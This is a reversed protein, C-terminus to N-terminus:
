PPIEVGLAQPDTETAVPTTTGWFPHERGRQGGGQARAASGRARLAGRRALGACGSGCPAAGGLAWSTCFRRLGAGSTSQPTEWLTVSLAWIAGLPLSSRSASRGVEPTSASERGRREGGLGAEQKVSSAASAAELGPRIIPDLHATVRAREALWRPAAVVLWAQSGKSGQFRFLPPFLSSAACRKGSRFAPAQAGMHNCPEYLAGTRATLPAWWRRAAPLVLHPRHIARQPPGPAWYHWAGNGELSDPSPAPPRGPSEPTHPSAERHAKDQWKRCDTLYWLLFSRRPSPARRESQARCLEALSKSDARAPGQM